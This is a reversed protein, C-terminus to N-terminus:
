KGKKTPTSLIERIKAFIRNKKNGPGTALADCFMEKVREELEPSDFDYSEILDVIKQTSNKKM